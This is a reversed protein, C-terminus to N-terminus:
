VITTVTNTRVSGERESSFFAKGNFTINDNNKDVTIEDPLLSYKKLIQM